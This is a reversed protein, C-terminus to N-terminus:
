DTGGKRGDAEKSSLASKGAFAYEARLLTGRPLSTAPLDIAQKNLSEGPLAPRAAGRQEGGSAGSVNCVNVNKKRSDRLFIEM